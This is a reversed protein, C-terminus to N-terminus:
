KGANYKAQASNYVEELKKSGLKDAQAVWDNWQAEGYSKDMMYKAAFEVGAKDLATQLDTITTSQDDTFRLIPDLPEFKNAKVIKDQAEQEKETFNFYVSRKDVNLYMSEMWAGYKDSLTSIDVKPIDKLEPYSAKGSADIVFEVDKIGLTVLESGSPSTLYDMVKLSAEKRDNNAVAIGFDLIKNLTERNGTPGIPNAYRLNYEPNKDKVQNYFMDLRGIWDWTVFAKDDSTMKATWSAATDTLVEPDMLGESYLKKMFNIMDKFEPQTTALKWLSTKEDYYMPFTPAGIGWGFAWNAFLLQTTKSAYPYSNPYIEKLKKLAQYFEDTNTWEKIGNKDFIDKRYLFGHNVDRSLGYVPWTYINGSDDAYSKMVWPNEDVYLKKFNPLQDIYKNIPVFVGQGGLSNVQVSSGGPVGEMIDPLKGSALTIKYKDPYVASPVEQVQITVGTRNAIEKIVPKESVNQVDCSLMWTVTVPKDVVPLELGGTDGYQQEQQSSATETSTSVAASTSTQDGNSKTAGCGTLLSAALSLFLLCSVVKKVM